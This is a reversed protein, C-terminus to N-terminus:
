AKHYRGGGLIDFSRYLAELVLLRALQHSFTLPSLSWREQVQREVGAPMGEAAGIVLVLHSRGQNMLDQLHQALKESTYQKGGIYLGVVHAGKCLREPVGDGDKWRAISHVEVRARAALRKLYEGEAAELEAHRNKQFCVVSIKM